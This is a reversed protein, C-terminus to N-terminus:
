KQIPPEEYQKALVDNINDLSMNFVVDWGNLASGQKHMTSVLDQESPANTAALVMFNFARLGLPQDKIRAELIFTLKLNVTNDKFRINKNLQTKPFGIEWTSFPTIPNV